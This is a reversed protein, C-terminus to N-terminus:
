TNAVVKEADHAVFYIIYGFMGIFVLLMMYTVVVIPKNKLKNNKDREEERDLFDSWDDIGRKESYRESSNTKRKSM